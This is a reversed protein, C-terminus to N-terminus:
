PKARVRWLLRAEKLQAERAVGTLTAYAPELLELRKSPRPYIVVGGDRVEMLFPKGSLPDLLHEGGLRATVGVQLEVPTGIGGVIAARAALAVRALVHKGDDRRHKLLIHIPEEAIDRFSPDGDRVLPLAAADAAHRQLWAKKEGVFNQLDRKRFQERLGAHGSALKGVQKNASVLFAVLVAKWIQLAGGFIDAFPLHWETEIRKM